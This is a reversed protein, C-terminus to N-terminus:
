KLFSLHLVVGDLFFILNKAEIVTYSPLIQHKGAMYRINYRHAPFLRWPELRWAALSLPRRHLAPHHPHRVVGAAPVDRARAAGTPRM